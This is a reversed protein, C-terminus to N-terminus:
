IEGTAVFRTLIKVLKDAQTRDLHMRTTLLVEEPIPYPIWGESANTEIGLRKADGHLVQPQADDIGLWIADKEALSSKQISCKSGYLDNFRM